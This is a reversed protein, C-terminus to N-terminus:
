READTTRRRLILMRAVSALCLGFFFITAFAILRHNPDAVLMVVGGGMLVLSGIQMVRLGFASHARAQSTMSEQLSMKEGSFTLRPLLYWMWGSYFACLIAAMMLCAAYGAFLNAGVILVLSVMLYAKIQRRLRQYNEASAISYGRGLIGWPFFLWRGDPTTKFSGSTLGEFYGM